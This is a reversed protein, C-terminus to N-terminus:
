RVQLEDYVARVGAANQVATIIAQREQQNDVQGQLSVNGDTVSITTGQLWSPPIAALQLQQAISRAVPEDAPTQAQVGTYPAVGPTIVPPPSVVPASPVVPPRKPPYVAPPEGSLGTPPYGVQMQDNLAVVGSTNRVMADIMQRDQENPVSGTLTVTGNQAGVQVYPAVTALDGYRSLEARINTELAVDSASPSSAPVVQGSPTVYSYPRPTECGAVLILSCVLGVALAGKM